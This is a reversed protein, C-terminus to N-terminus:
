VVLVLADAGVGVEVVVVTGLNGFYVDVGVGIGVAVDFGEFVAVAIGGVGVIAGCEVAVVDGVGVTRGV